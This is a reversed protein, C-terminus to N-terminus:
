LDGSFGGREDTDVPAERHRDHSREVVSTGALAQVEHDGRDRVAHDPRSSGSHVGNPHAVDVDGSSDAVYAVGNAGITENQFSEYASFDTWHRRGDVVDGGPERRCDSVNRVLEGLEGPDM